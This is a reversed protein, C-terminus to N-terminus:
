KKKDVLVGEVNFTKGQYALSRKNQKINQIKKFISEQQEKLVLTNKNELIIAESVLEKIYNNVVNSNIEPHNLNLSNIKEIICQKKNIVDLILKHDNNNIAKSQEQTLQLFSEFFGQMEITLNVIETDDKDKVINEAQINM